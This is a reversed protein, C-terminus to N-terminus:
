GLLDPFLVSGPIQMDLLVDFFVYVVVPLLISIILMLKKNKQGLMMMAIYTYFPTAIYFGVVEIFGVYIVLLLAMFLASKTGSFNTIEMPKGINFRVKIILMTALVIALIGVIYPFLRSQPEKISPTVILFALAWIYVFIASLYNYNFPKKVSKNEM